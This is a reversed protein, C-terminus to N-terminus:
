DDGRVRWYSAFRPLGDDTHGRHRYSVHTGVAPPNEREADSLGSGLRLERGDALRVRLAGVRGAHRGRGPLHGVVVAEADSLLKLKLLDASRGPQWRAAARHLMLGEGGARVTAELRQALAARGPVVAQAEAQVWPSALADALRQLAQAREAFPRPDAPLDFLMYRLGRWASEDPQLRRSTGSAQEFGGRGAWLEGDLAQPPLAATFWDPAKILRGSRFRLQRGDWCARVGDLKESVLFGDPDPMAAPEQALMLAPAAAPDGTAAFGPGPAASAQRVLGALGTLPSLSALCVRRRQLNM